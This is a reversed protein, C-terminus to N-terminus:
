KTGGLLLRTEKAANAMAAQSTMRNTLAASVYRQLIDSAQAYQPVRPRVVASQMVKYIDRQVPDNTTEYFSKLAPPTGRTAQIRRVQPLASLYECFKWAEEKHPSNKAVCMGWGGLTATPRGNPAAPMLKLGINGRVASGPQQAMTYVFPWNRLFVARGSLFMLRGEEETYATTGPPSIGAGHITNCMWELAAIAERRDLGVDDSDANIWYGGFGTLVEVFNCILGEYQKGQWVFGWLRDPRQLKLAIRVLEDFTEPPTEGAAALLDRRYYLVGVDITQPVRYIRGKYKSGELAGPVFENWREAPWRDTLDELWGAAAFKPVWVVDAFILDYVTEGSLLSTVYLDERANTESPGEIYNIRITPNAAEFERIFQHWDGTIDADMMVSLQVVPRNLSHSRSCAALVLLCIIAARGLATSGARM